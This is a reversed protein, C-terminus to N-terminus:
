LLISDSIMPSIFHMEARLCLHFIPSIKTSLDTLMQRQVEDQAPLGPVVLLACYSCECKRQQLSCACIFVISSRLFTGTKKTASQVLGLVPDPCVVPGRDPVLARVPAVQISCLFLNKILIAHM